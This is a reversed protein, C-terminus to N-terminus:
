EDRQCEREVNVTLMRRVELLFSATYTCEIDQYETTNKQHYCEVNVLIFNKQSVTRGGGKVKGMM